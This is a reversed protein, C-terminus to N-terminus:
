VTLPHHGRNIVHSWESKKKGDKSRAVVSIRHEVPELGFDIEASHPPITTTAIVKGDLLISVKSEEFPPIVTIEARGRIDRITPPNERDLVLRTVGARAAGAALILVLLLAVRKVRAATETFEATSM